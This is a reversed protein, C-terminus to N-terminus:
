ESANCRRPELIPARELASQAFTSVVHICNSFTRGEDHRVPCVGFVEIYRVTAVAM